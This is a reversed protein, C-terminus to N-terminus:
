VWHLDNITIGIEMSKFLLEAGVPIGDSSCTDVKLWRYTLTWSGSEYLGMQDRSPVNWVKWCAKWLWPWWSICHQYIKRKHDSRLRSIIRSQGWLVPWKEPYLEWYGHWILDTQFYSGSCVLTSDLCELSLIRAIVKIRNIWKVIFPGNMRENGVM